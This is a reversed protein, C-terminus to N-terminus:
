ITLNEIIFANKIWELQMTGDIPHIAVIDFRSPKRYLWNHHQLFHVATKILKQQKHITISEIANGFDIRNRKRVEVFIIEIKDKMILDIEGYRCHYNSQLLTLGSKQLYACATQEALKGQHYNRNRVM